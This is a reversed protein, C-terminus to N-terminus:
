GENGPRRKLFADALTEALAGKGHPVATRDAFPVHDVIGGRGLDIHIRLRVLNAGVASQQGALRRSHQRKRLSIKQELHPLNHPPDGGQWLPNLLMLAKRTPIAPGTPQPLVANTSRSLLRSHGSNFRATTVFSM